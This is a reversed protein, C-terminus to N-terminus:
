PKLNLCLLVSVASSLIRTNKHM